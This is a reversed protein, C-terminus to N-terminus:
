RGRRRPPSTRAVALPVGEPYPVPPPARVPFPEAVKRWGLARAIALVEALTPFPRRCERGYREVACLFEFEEADYTEDVGPRCNPHLKANAARLRPYDLPPATSM